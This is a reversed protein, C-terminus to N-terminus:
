AGFKPCGSGGNFRLVKNLIDALAWTPLGPKLPETGGTKKVIVSELHSKIAEHVLDEKSDDMEIQLMSHVGNGPKGDDFKTSLSVPDIHFDDVSANGSFGSRDSCRLSLQLSLHYPNHCCIYGNIWDTGGKTAKAWIRLNSFKGKAKIAWRQQGAPGPTRNREQVDVSSEPLVELEVIRLSSLGDIFAISATLDLAAVHIPKMPVHKCESKNFHRHQQHRHERLADCNGIAPPVNEMVLLNVRPVEQELVKNMDALSHVSAPEHPGLQWFIIFWFLWVFVERWVLRGLWSGTGGVASTNKTKWSERLSVWAAEFASVVSSKSSVSDVSALSLNPDLDMEAM